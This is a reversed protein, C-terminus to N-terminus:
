ISLKLIIWQIIIKSLSNCVTIILTAILNLYYCWWKLNFYDDCAASVNKFDDTQKASDSIQLDPSQHKFQCYCSFEGSLKDLTAPDNAIM